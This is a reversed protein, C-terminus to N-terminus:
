PVLTLRYYRAPQGVASTDFYLQGTNTILISALPTWSGVGVANVYELTYTRGVDGQLSIAPVMDIHLAPVISLLAPNSTSSGSFDSVVVAYTGSQSSQVNTLSLISNTANPIPNNSFYWRYRLPPQGIADVNLTISSGISV